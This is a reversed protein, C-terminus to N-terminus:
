ESSYATQQHYHHHPHHEPTIFTSSDDDSNDDDDDNHNSTTATPPPQAPTPQYALTPIAALSSSSSCDVPQKVGRGGEGRGTVGQVGTRSQESVRECMKKHHKTKGKKVCFTHKFYTTSALMSSRDSMLGKAARSALTHTKLQRQRGPAFDSKRRGKKHPPHSRSYRLCGRCM